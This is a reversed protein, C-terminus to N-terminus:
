MSDPFPKNSQRPLKNRFQINHSLGSTCQHFTRAGLTLTTNVESVLDRHGYECIQLSVPLLLVVTVEVFVTCVVKVCVSTSITVTCKCTSSVKVTLEITVVVM